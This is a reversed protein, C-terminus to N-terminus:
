NFEKMEFLTNNYKFTDLSINHEKFVNQHLYNYGDKINNYHLQEKEYNSKEVYENVCYHYYPKVNYKSLVNNINSKNNLCDIVDSVDIFTNIENLIDKIWKKHQPLMDLNFRKCSYLYLIIQKNISEYHAVVESLIHRKTVENILYEIDNNNYTKLFHERRENDFQKKYQYGNYIDKITTIIYDIGGNSVNDRCEILYHLYLHEMLNCYCLNYPQHLEYNNINKAQHRNSIYKYRYEQIHHIQLYKITPHKNKRNESKYQNTNWYNYKPIGYKNQLYKCYDFYIKEIRKVDDITHNKNFNIGQYYNNKTNMLGIFNLTNTLVQFNSKITKLLQKYEDLETNENNLKDIIKLMEDQTYIIKKNKRELKNTFLNIMEQSLSTKTMTKRKM